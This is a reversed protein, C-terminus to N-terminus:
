YYDPHTEDYFMRRSEYEESDKYLYHSFRFRSCYKPDEPDPRKMWRFIKHWKEWRELDNLLKTECSLCDGMGMVGEMVEDSLFTVVGCHNIQGHGCVCMYDVVERDPDPAPIMIRSQTM